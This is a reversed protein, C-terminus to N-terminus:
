HRHDALGGEHLSDHYERLDNDSWSFDENGYHAHKPDAYDSSVMDNDYLHDETLHDVMSLRDKPMDTAGQRAVNDMGADVDVVRAKFPRGLQRAAAVRHHGDVGWLEGGFRLLRPRGNDQDEETTGKEKFDIAGGGPKRRGVYKQVHEAGVYPQTTKIPDEPNVTTVDSHSWQWGHKDNNPGLLGYHAVVERPAEAGRVHQLGYAEVPVAHAERYRDRDAGTAFEDTRGM